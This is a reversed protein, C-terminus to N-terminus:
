PRRGSSSFVVAQLWLADDEIKRKLSTDLCEQCEATLKQLEYEFVAEEEKTIM